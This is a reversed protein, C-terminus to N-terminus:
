KEEKLKDMVKISDLVAKEVVDLPTSSLIIDTLSNSMSEMIKLKESSNKM